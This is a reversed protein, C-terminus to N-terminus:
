KKVGGKPKPSKVSVGSENIAREAAHDPGSGGASQLVGRIEGGGTPVTVVMQSDALKNHFPTHRSINAAGHKADAAIEDRRKMLYDVQLGAKVREGFDKSSKGEFELKYDGGEVFEIKFKGTADTTALARMQGGPNKGGKVMIGGIPSGPAAFAANSFYLLVLAVVVRAVPFKMRFGEFHHRSCDYLLAPM